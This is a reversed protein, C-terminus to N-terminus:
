VSLILLRLFIWEVFVFGMMVGFCFVYDEDEYLFVWVLDVCKVVFWFEFFLIVIVDFEEICLCM